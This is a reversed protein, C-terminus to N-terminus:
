FAYELVKGQPIADCTLRTKLSELTSIAYECLISHTVVCEIITFRVSSASFLYKDFIYFREGINKGSITRAAAFNLNKTEEEM